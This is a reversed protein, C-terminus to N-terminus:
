VRELESEKVLGFGQLEYYLEGEYTMTKAVSYTTNKANTITVRDGVNLRPAVKKARDTTFKAKIVM